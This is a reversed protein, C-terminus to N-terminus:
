LCQRQRRQPEACMCATEECPAAARGGGCPGEARCREAAHGKGDGQQYGGGEGELLAEVAAVHGHFSAPYLAAQGASGAEDVGAGAALLRAVATADGRSAAPLLEGPPPALSM